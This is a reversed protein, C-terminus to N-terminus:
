IKQFKQNYFWIGLIQGSNAMEPVRLHSISDSILNKFNVGELPLNSKFTNLFVIRQLHTLISTYFNDSLLFQQM